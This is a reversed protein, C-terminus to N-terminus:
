SKFRKFIIFVFILIGAAFITKVSLVNIIEFVGITALTVLIGAIIIGASMAAAAYLFRVGLLYSILCGTWIGTGPVPIGVFLLLGFAGYKEVKESKKRTRKLIFEIANNFIKIRRFFSILPDLLLLLPIIPLFNGILSLYFAKWPEIGMTVALPIAARLETVPVTSLLVIGIDKSVLNFLYEYFLNKQEGKGLLTNFAADM